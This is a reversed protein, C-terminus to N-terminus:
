NAKKSLKDQVSQMLPKVIKVIPSTIYKIRIDIVDKSFDKKVLFDAM